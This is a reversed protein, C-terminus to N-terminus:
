IPVFLQSMPQQLSKLVYKLVELVCTDICYVIISTLIFILFVRFSSFPLFLTNSGPPIGCNIKVVIMWLFLTFILAGVFMRFCSNM